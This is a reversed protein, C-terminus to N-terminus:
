NHLKGQELKEERLKVYQGWCKKKRRLTSSTSFSNPDWVSFLSQMDEDTRSVYICSPLDAMTKDVSEIYFLKMTLIHFLYKLFVTFPSYQTSNLTIM